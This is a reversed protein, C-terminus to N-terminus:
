KSTITSEEGTFGGTHSHGAVTVKGTVTGEPTYAIDAVNGAPTYSIDAVSGKPTYKIDAISGAPTIDDIAVTGTPAKATGTFTATATLQAVDVAGDPTYADLTIGGVPTFKGTSTLENGTFTPASALEATTSTLATGFTITLIENAVTASGTTASDSSVTINPKSVTGTPTATVSVDGQTGTFSGTPAKATGTWTASQKPTTVEVTGEPTYESGAFTGTPSIKTGTFTTQLTAETGAFTTQLTAETGTFTTQLTAPKGTLSGSSIDYTAEAIAAVTVTGNPTYKATVEDKYALDGLGSSSGLENWTTGNWIFEIDYKEATESKKAHVMDGAKPTLSSTSNDAGIITVTSTASGDVLIESVKGLYHVGGKLAEQIDSIAGANIAINSENEAVRTEVASLATRAAADKIDYTVGGINAQSIRNKNVDNAEINIAM